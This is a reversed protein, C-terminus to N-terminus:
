EINDLEYGHSNFVKIADEALHKTMMQEMLDAPITVTDSGANYAKIIQGTNKFSAGMIKAKLNKSDIFNRLDSIVGFADINNNLMRNTYPALYDCDALAGLIGQETSYIATGLIIRDSEQSKLEQIFKLGSYNIPVKIGIKRNDFDEINRYDVWLEDVSSGILQVFTLHPNIEKLHNLQEKQKVKEKLLITPNTTIGKVFDFEIYHNIEDIDATDLYM